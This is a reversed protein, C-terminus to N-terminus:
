ERFIRFWVSRDSMQVASGHPYRPQLLKPDNIRAEWPAMEGSTLHSSKCALKRRLEVLYPSSSANLHTCEDRLQM